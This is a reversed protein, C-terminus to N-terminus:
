ALMVCLLTCLHNDAYRVSLLPDLLSLIVWLLHSIFQVQGSPIIACVEIVICIITTIIKVDSIVQVLLDDFPCDLTMKSIRPKPTVGLTVMACITWVMWQVGMHM